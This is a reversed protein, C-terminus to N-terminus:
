RKISEMPFINEKYAEECLLDPHDWNKYKLYSIAKCGGCCLKLYKCSQCIGKITKIPNERILNWPTSRANDILEPLSADKVNGLVFHEDDLLVDCPATDGNAAISLMDPFGCLHGMGFKEAKGFLPILGPPILLVLHSQFKKKLSYFENLLPRIPPIDARDVQEVPMVPHIAVWHAGNSLSNQVVSEIEYLNETTVTMIVSLNKIRAATKKLVRTSSKYANTLGVIRNHTKEDGHISIQLHDLGSEVIKELITDKIQIANTSMAVEIGLSRAYKIIEAIDERLTPEGGTLFIRFVGLDHLQAICDCIKEFSLSERRNLKQYSSCFFCRAQCQNTVRITAYTLPVIGLVKAIEKASFAIDDPNLPIKDPKKM